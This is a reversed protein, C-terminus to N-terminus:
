VTSPPKDNRPETTEYPCLEEITKDLADHEGKYWGYKELTNRITFLDTVGASEALALRRLKEDTTM